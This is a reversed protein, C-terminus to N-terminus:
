TAAASCKSQQQFVHRVAMECRREECHQLTFNTTALQIHTAVVTLRCLALQASQTRVNESADFEVPERDGDGVEAAVM